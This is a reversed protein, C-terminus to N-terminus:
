GEGGGKLRCQVIDFAALARTELDYGLPPVGKFMLEQNGLGEWWFKRLAFVQAWAWFALSFAASAVQPEDLAGVTSGLGRIFKCSTIGVRVSRPQAIVGCRNLVTLKLLQRRAWFTPSGHSGDTPLVTAM